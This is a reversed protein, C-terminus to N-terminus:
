DIFVGDPGAREIIDAIQSFSWGNDNLVDLPIMGGRVSLDDLAVSEERSLVSRDVYVRLEKSWLSFAECAWLAVEPPLLATADLNGYTGAFDGAPLRKLQKSCAGDAVAMESLVGLCCYGVPARDSDALMLRNRAQRFEGSRLAVLWRDFVDKKMKAM